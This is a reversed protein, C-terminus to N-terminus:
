ELSQNISMRGNRRKLAQTVQGSVILVALAGFQVGAVVARYHDLAARSRYSLSARNHELIYGLTGYVLFLFALAGFCCRAWGAPRRRTISIVLMGVFGLVGTAAYFLAHEDPTM